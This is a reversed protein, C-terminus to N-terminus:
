KNLPPNFRGYDTAMADTMLVGKKDKDPHATWRLLVRTAQRNGGARQLELAQAPTPRKSRVQTGAAPALPATRRSSAPQDRVESRAHDGM